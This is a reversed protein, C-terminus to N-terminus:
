ATLVIRADTTARWADAVEALPVAQVPLRLRGSGILELYRPLEAAMQRMSIAGLGSGRLRFKRGRLLAAPVAADEGASSGIEIHVIDAPDEDTSRRILAAFAAEAVSGWVFDVVTTPSAGGLAERIAAADVDRDGVLAVTRAGLDRLGALREPERGVALVDDAGLALANQIALTGAAGTAGLVLVTGLGDAGREDARTVLPLWSALGPNMAGAVLVPDAGAPLPVAFHTPAAMREALTGYPAPILGTYVLTGDATRAVADVGAVVPWADPGGYHGGSVLARVAPHLGAAVLDVLQTGPTLVPEPFDAYTPTAGPSAVVAAKM